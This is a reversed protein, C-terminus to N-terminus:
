VNGESELDDVSKGHFIAWKVTVPDSHDIGLFFLSQHRHGYSKFQVSQYVLMASTSCFM